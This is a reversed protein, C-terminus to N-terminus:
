RRLCRGRGGSAISELIVFSKTVLNAIGELVASAPYGADSM